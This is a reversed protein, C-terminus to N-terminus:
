SLKYRGTALGSKLEDSDMDAVEQQTLVRPTTESTLGTPDEPRPAGLADGVNEVAKLAESEVPTDPTPIDIGRAKAKAVVEEAIQELNAPFVNNIFATFEDVDTLLGFVFESYAESGEFEEWIETSRVLKDGVRKGYARRIIAKLEKHVAPVDDTDIMRQLSAQMGTYTKGDKEYPTNGHADVEMEILDAKSISFYLEETVKENTFPNEYTVTKTVM